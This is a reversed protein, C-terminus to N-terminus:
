AGISRFRAISLGDRVPLIVHEFREDDTLLQNYKILEQTAKDREDAPEVVKGSWLINDSLLLCGRNMKPIVVELYRTYDAKKADIFVLDFRQDLQPILEIADGILPKILSGYPSQNWYRQQLLSLEENVEITLLQGGPKIGEALCLASYGTYTGIELVHEPSCIKAILALLRGQYKGSLMRPQVVKLHTERRLAALYEPESDLQTNLYDELQDSFFHM